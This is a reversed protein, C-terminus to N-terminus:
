ECTIQGSIRNIKIKKEKNLETHKLTVVVESEDMGGNIYVKPKPPVFTISVESFSQTDLQIDSIIVKSDLTFTGGSVEEWNENYLGDPEDEGAKTTDAFLVFSCPPTLCKEMYVGYGGKPVLDECASGPCEDDSTCIKGRNGGEECIKSTEGTLAKTQAQKLVSDLNLAEQRLVDSRQGTRFNAVVLGTMVLFIGISILLEILTFGLQSIYSALHLTYPLKKIRM